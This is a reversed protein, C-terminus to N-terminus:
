LLSEARQLAAGFTWPRTLTLNIYWDPMGNEIQGTAELYQAMPCSEGNSWDYCQDAPKTRLWAIIDLLGNDWNPNYLM